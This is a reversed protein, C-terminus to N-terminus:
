EGSLKLYKVLERVPDYQKSTAFDLYKIGYLTKLLNKDGPMNKFDQLAFMMDHTFKPYQAYFGQRVCFPDNPIPSSVWLVRVKNQPTYRTWAGTKANKDDAYVAVADVIGAELAKVAVEHQGLYKQEKFFKSPKYGKKILMVEPFLHGSASKEDVWGIRKGKLDKVSKIKSKQSVIIASYYYPGDWVKKLLVKAGDNEAEVFTMASFFAFDIMGKKMANSLDGYTKAIYINIPVGLKTQLASALKVGNARLWEPNEGPTFGMITSHPGGEALCVHSTTLIPLVFLALFIFKQLSRIM